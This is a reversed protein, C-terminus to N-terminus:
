VPLAKYIDIADKLVIFIKNIVADKLVKFIKNIKHELSQDYGKILLFYQKVFFPFFDL